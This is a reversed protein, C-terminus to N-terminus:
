KHKPQGKKYPIVTVGLFQDDLCPWWHWAYFARRWWAWPVYPYAFFPLGATTTVYKDTTTPGLRWTRTHCPDWAMPFLPWMAFYPHRTM